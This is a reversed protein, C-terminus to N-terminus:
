TGGQIPIEEFAALRPYIDGAAFCVRGDQNIAATLRSNAGANPHEGPTLHGAYFTNGM